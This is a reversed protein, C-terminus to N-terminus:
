PETARNSAEPHLTRLKVDLNEPKQSNLKADEGQPNRSPLEPKLSKGEPIRPIGVPRKCLVHASVWGVSALYTAFHM